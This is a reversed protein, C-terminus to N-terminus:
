SHISVLQFLALTRLFKSESKTTTLCRYILLESWGVWARTVNGQSAKLNALSLQLSHYIFFTSLIIGNGPVLSALSCPHIQMLVGLPLTIGVGLQGSWVVFFGGFVNAIVSFGKTTLV